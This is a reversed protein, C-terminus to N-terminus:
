HFGSAFVFITIHILMMFISVMNSVKVTDKKSEIDDAVRIAEFWWPDKTCSNTINEDNYLLVSKEDTNVFQLDLNNATPGRPSKTQDSHFFVSPDPIIDIPIPRLPSRYGLAM